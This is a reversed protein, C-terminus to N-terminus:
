LFLWSKAGTQNPAWLPGREFIPTLIETKLLLIWVKQGVLMWGGLNLVLNSANKLRILNLLEMQSCSMGINFVQM